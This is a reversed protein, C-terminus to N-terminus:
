MGGLVCFFVIYIYIYFLSDTSTSTDMSFPPLHPGTGQRRKEQVILQLLASGSVLQVRKPHQLLFGVLPPSPCLWEGTSTHPSTHAPKDKHDMGLLPASGMETHGFVPSGWVTSKGTSCGRSPHGALQINGTLKLHLGCFHRLCSQNFGIRPLHSEIEGTDKTGKLVSGVLPGAEGYSRTGKM